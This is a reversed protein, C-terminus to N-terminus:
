LILVLVNLIWLFDCFIWYILLALSFFIRLSVSSMLAGSNLAHQLAVIVLVAHHQYLSHCVSWHFLMTSACLSFCLDIPCWPTPVFVPVIILPFAPHQCLSLCHFQMPNTCLTVCLDTSCYLLPLFVSVYVLPVSYPDFFNIGM